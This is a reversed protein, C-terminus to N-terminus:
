LYFMLICIVINFLYSCSYSYIFRVNLQLVMLMLLRFLAWTFNSRTTWLRWFNNFIFLQFLQLRIEMLFIFFVQIIWIIIFLEILMEMLVLLSSVFFWFDFILIFLIIEIFSIFDSLLYRRIAIKFLILEKLVINIWRWTIQEM